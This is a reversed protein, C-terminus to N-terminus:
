SHSVGYKSSLERKIEEMRLAINSHRSRDVRYTELGDHYNNSNRILEVEQDYKMLKQEYKSDDRLGFVIIPVFNFFIMLLSAIIYINTPINVGYISFEYALFAFVPIFGLLYLKANRETFLSPKTPKNQNVLEEPYNRPVSNKSKISLLDYEHKLAFISEKKNTELQLHQEMHDNTIIHTAIELSIYYAMNLDLIPGHWGGPAELFAFKIGIQLYHDVSYWLDILIAKEQLFPLPDSRIMPIFVGHRIKTFLNKYSEIIKSPFTANDLKIHLEDWSLIESEDISKEYDAHLDNRKPAGTIHDQIYHLAVGLTHYCEDDDDLYQQRAEKIASIIEYEKEKHHPYDMWGDPAVSGNSLLHQYKKRPKVSHLYPKCNKSPYRRENYIRM